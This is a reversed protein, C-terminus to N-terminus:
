YCKTAVNTKVHSEFKRKLGKIPYLHIEINYRYGLTFVLPHLIMSLHLISLLDCNHPEQYFQLPNRSCKKRDVFFDYASQHETLVRQSLGFSGSRTGPGFELYRLSLYVAIQYSSPKKPYWILKYLYM